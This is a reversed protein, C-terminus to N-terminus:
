VQLELLILHLDLNIRNLLKFIILCNLLLNFNLLDLLNVLHDILNSLNFLHSLHDIFNILIVIQLFQQYNDIIQSLLLCNGIILYNPFVLFNM